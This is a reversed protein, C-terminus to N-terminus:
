RLKISRAFYSNNPERNPDDGINIQKEIKPLYIMLAQIMTQLMVDVSDLAESGGGFKRKSCTIKNNLIKRLDGEALLLVPLSSVLSSIETVITPIFSKRAEELLYMGKMRAKLRMYTGRTYIVQVLPAVSNGADFFSKRFKTLRFLDWTDKFASSQQHPRTVEGFMIELDGIKTELRYRAQWAKQKAKKSDFLRYKPMELDNFVACRRSAPLKSSREINGLTVLGEPVILT